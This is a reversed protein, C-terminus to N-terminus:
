TVTICTRRMRLPQLRIGNSIDSSMVGSRIATPDEFKASPNIVHGAM